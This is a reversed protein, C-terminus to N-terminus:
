RTRISDIGAASQGDVYTRNVMPHNEDAPGTDSDPHWAVVDMSSEHTYFCHETDPPLVWMMGPRLPIRGHPSVCEGYGRAICGVRVSPHTHMTQEIGPPFHLHNLCPDGVRPPGILLTDTCGDIYNLRGSKEIPGAITFLGTWDERKVVLCSSSRITAPPPVCFVMGPLVAYAVCEGSERELHLFAEKYAFGYVTGCGSFELERSRDLHMAWGPFNQDINGVVDAPKLVNLTAPAKSEM